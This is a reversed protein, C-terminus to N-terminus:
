SYTVDEQVMVQGEASSAEEACSGSASSWSMSDEVVAPLEFYSPDISVVVAIARSKIFLLEVQGSAKSYDLYTCSFTTAGGPM